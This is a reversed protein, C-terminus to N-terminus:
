RPPERRAFRLGSRNGISWRVQGTLRGIRPLTVTLTEAIAFRGTICCGDLSLDSVVSDFERGDARAM